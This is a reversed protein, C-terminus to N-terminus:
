EFETNCRPCRNERGKVSAGCMSCIFKDDSANEGCLEEIEKKWIEREKEVQEEIKRDFSLGCRTCFEDGERLINGCEACVTEEPEDFTEGCRPCFTDDSSVLTSCSSCQNAGSTKMGAMDPPTARKRKKLKAKMRMNNIITFILLMLLFVLPIFCCKDEYWEEESKKKEKEGAIEFTVYGNGAPIHARDNELWIVPYYTHRGPGLDMALSNISYNVGQSFNNKSTTPRMEFHTTNDIAANVSRPGEDSPNRYIVSFIFVTKEDGALPTVMFSTIPSVIEVHFAPDEFIFKGHTSNIIFSYNYFGPPLPGLMINRYFVTRKGMSVADEMKVTSLNGIKLEVSIIGSDNPVSLNFSFLTGNIGSRPFVSANLDRPDIGNARVLLDYPSTGQPTFDSTVPSGNYSFSLPLSTSLLALLLTLCLFRKKGTPWSRDSIHESTSYWTTRPNRKLM